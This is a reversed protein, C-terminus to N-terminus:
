SKGHCLFHTDTDDSVPHSVSSLQIEKFVYQHMTKAKSLKRLTRCHKFLCGSVWSQVKLHHILALHQCERLQSPDKEEGQGWTTGIGDKEKHQVAASLRPLDTQPISVSDLNNSISYHKVLCHPQM